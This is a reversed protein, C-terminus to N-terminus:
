LARYLRYFEALLNFLFLGVLGQMVLTVGHYGEILAVGKPDVQLSLLFAAFLPGVINVFRNM